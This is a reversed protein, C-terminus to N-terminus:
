GDIQWRDIVFKLSSKNVNTSIFLDDMAGQGFLKELEDLIESTAAKKLFFLTQKFDTGSSQVVGIKESRSTEDGLKAGGQLVSNFKM